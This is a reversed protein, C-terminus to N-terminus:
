HPPPCFEIWHSSDGCSEKMMIKPFPLLFGTPPAITSLEQLNPLLQGHLDVGELICIHPRYVEGLLPFVWENFDSLQRRCEEIMDHYSKPLVVEVVCADSNPNRYFDIAGTIAYSSPDEKNYLARAIALGTAFNRMEDPHARFPPLLTTHNGMKPTDADPCIERCRRRLNDIVISLRTGERYHHVLCFQKQLM